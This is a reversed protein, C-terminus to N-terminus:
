PLNRYITQDQLMEVRLTGGNGDYSGTDNDQLFIRYYGPKQYTRVRFKPDGGCNTENVALTGDPYYIRLIDLRRNGENDGCNAITIDIFPEDQVRLFGEWYTYQGNTVWPAPLPKTSELLNVEGPHPDLTPTHSAPTPESTATLKPTPTDTPTPTSTPTLTWTPSPTSTPIPTGTRTPTDTACQETEIKKQTLRMTNLVRFPVDGIKSGDARQISVTGAQWIEEWQLTVTTISNAPTEIQRETQVTESGGVQLGLSASVETEIEADAVVISGGLQGRLSQSFESELVVNFERSRTFSEKASLQSGCNNTTVQFESGTARIVPSDDTAVLYSFGLDEAVQTPPLAPGCSALMLIIACAASNRFLLRCM